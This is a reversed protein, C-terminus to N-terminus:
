KLKLQQDVGEKEEEGEREERQAEVLRREWGTTGRICAACLLSPVGRVCGCCKAGGGQSKRQRATGTACASRVGEHEEKQWASAEIKELRKDRQATTKELDGSM